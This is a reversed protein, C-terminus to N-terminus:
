SLIIGILVTIGAWCLGGGASPPGRSSGAFPSENFAGTAETVSRGVVPGDM